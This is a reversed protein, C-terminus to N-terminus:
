LGGTQGARIALSALIALATALLLLPALRFALLIALAVRKQGPRNALPWLPGYLAKALQGLQGATSDDSNALRVPLPAQGIEDKALQGPKAVTKALQGSCRSM